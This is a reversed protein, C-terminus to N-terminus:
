AAEALQNADARLETKVVGEGYITAWDNAMSFTTWGAEQAEGTQKEARELDGYEREADDCLVLLGMGKHEPNSQAYNLMAYDGSSNGFALIPRRGIEREIYIVKNLKGVEPVKTGDFVLEDGAVFTYENVTEDGQGTARTGWDTGIVRNPAVGFKSVAIARAVERECASVVYVDFDNARLYDVVEAMPKYVSEGYTMGDFGEVATTDIFNKVYDQFDDTTMGAFSGVLAANKATDLTSDVVGRDANARLQECTQVYEAPAEYTPDDFVRHLLMCYDVYVPAKECLLTGDMDFTAIREEPEVYNASNKDTVDQVYAVLKALSESGETWSPFTAAFDVENAAVEEGTTEDGATGEAAAAEEAPAQEGSAAAEQATTGESATTTKGGQQPQQACAGLLGTCLALAVLLTVFLPKHQQHKM